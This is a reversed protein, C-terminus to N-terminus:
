RKGANVVNPQPLTIEDAGGLIRDAVEVGQMVSHDMNSVEYKWGGFRGRSYINLKELAPLVDGLIADRDLTPVPYGFEEKRHFIHTTAPDADVLGSERLGRLTAPAPDPADMPADGPQSIECLFSCHRAPDPVHDPSFTSFPTIRYFVHQEEPVYIWTKDRLPEPIPFSPAVGVVHVHTHRLQRARRIMVEDGVLEALRPIPITSILHDYTERSGDAFRAERKQTDLGTLACSLHLSGSPLRAALAKWIAGTGGQKPFQFTHNPGWSVDDLGQEVNRIVRALDVTPVRDGIWQYGMLRPEISWTKRNYPFMFHRAIGRGFGALIWEEFNSPPPRAPAAALERLGEICEDRYAPPLHRINYQFPYPIFTRYESVWSRREHHYFGGPLLDEMLRDIYHYHSHAVHVAFDWLFGRGDRFSAALGGVYPHRDYVAFDTFGKEALRHAAGLGCPGAGIIVIRM